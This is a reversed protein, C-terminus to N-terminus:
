ILTDDYWGKFVFATRMYGLKLVRTSWNKEYVKKFLNIQVSCLVYYMNGNLIKYIYIYLQIYAFSYEM